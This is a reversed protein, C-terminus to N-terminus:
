NMSIFTLVKIIIDSRYYRVKFENRHLLFLKKYEDMWVFALRATNIGHTDKNNPFKYPHFNRFIHGM